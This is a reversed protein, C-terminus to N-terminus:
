KDARFLIGKVELNTSAAAALEVVVNGFLTTTNGPLRTSVTVTNGGDIKCVINGANTMTMEFTHWSADKAMGMSTTVMAATADNNFVSFNATTTSFGMLCGHEGSALITDSAPLTNNSSFGCFFRTSTTTSVQAKVKFYTNLSRQTPLQFTANSLYGIIAGSTSSNFNTVWGESADNVTSLTGGTVWGDLAGCTGNTPNAAVSAFGQRKYSTLFPSQLVGVLTNADADITKGTLTEVKGPGIIQTWSTGNHYYFNGTDSELFRWGVLGAHSPKTDAALGVMMLGGYRQVTM